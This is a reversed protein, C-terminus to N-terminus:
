LFMQKIVTGSGGEPPTKTSALLAGATSSFMEFSQLAQESVFLLEILIIEEKQGKFCLTKLTNM